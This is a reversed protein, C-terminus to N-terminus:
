EVNKVEMADAIRSLQDGIDSFCAAMNELAEVQKAFCIFFEEEFTLRVPQTPKPDDEFM